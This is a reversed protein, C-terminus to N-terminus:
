SNKNQAAFKKMCIRTLLSVAIIVASLMLTIGGVQIELVFYWPFSIWSGGSGQFPIYIMSSASIISFIIYAIPLKMKRFVISVLTFLGIVLLSLIIYTILNGTQILKEDNPGVSDVFRGDVISKAFVCLYIVILILNIYRYKQNKNKEM